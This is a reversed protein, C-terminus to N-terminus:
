RTEGAEYIYVEYETVDLLGDTSTVRWMFREAKIPKKYMFKQNNSAVITHTKATTWTSGGDKSYQLTLTGAKVGNYMLRIESVMVDDKPIRYEKSRIEMTYAVDGDDDDETTTEIELNGSSDGVVLTPTVVPSVSLADITGTLADITGTLDDIATYASLIGVVGAASINDQEDYVWAQTRENWTWLRVVDSGSQPIGVTYEDEYKNYTAFITNPDEIGSVIQDAIAEGIPIPAQGPIYKYVMKHEVSLFMIGNKAVAISAGIDAGIGPVAEYLNFPDSAIPKSTALWISKGRPIIMVNTFGFIGTIPDHSGSSSIALQKNGASIDEVADWEDIVRNASWYLTALSEPSDGTAAAVVRDAFGTCYRARPAITGLDAVTGANIDVKQLRNKGNAIILSGLVATVDIFDQDGANLTGSLATWADTTAYHVGTNTIRIYYSSFGSQLDIIRRIKLSDPKTGLFTAKGYRRSTKDYRVRVNKALSLAGDPLDAPDITSIMGKNLVAAGLIEKDKLKPQSMGAVKIPRGFTTAM